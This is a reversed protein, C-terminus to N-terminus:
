LTLRWTQRTDGGPNDVLRKVAGAAVLVNTYRRVEDKVTKRKRFADESRDEPDPITRNLAKALDAWGKYYHEPAEGKRGESDLSKLAMRM